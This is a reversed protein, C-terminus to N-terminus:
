RAATQLWPLALYVGHLVIVAFAVAYVLVTGVPRRARRFLIRATRRRLFSESTRSNARPRSSKTLVCTAIM